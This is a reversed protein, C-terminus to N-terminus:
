KKFDIGQALAVGVTNKIRFTLKDYLEQFKDERLIGEGDMLTYTDYALNAIDYIVGYKDRQDEEHPSFNPYRIIILIHLSDIGHEPRTAGDIIQECRHLFEHQLYEPSIDRKFGLSEMHSLLSEARLPDMDEHGYDQLVKVISELRLTDSISSFKEATLNENDRNMLQGGAKDAGEGAALKDHSMEPKDTMDSKDTM